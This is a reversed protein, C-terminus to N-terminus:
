EGLCCMPYAACQLLSRLVNFFFLFFVIRRGEKARDIGCMGLMFLFMRYLCVATDKGDCWPLYHECSVILLRSKKIEKKKKRKKKASLFGQANDPSKKEGRLHHLLSM